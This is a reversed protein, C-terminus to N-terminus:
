APEEVESEIVSPITLDGTWEVEYGEGRLLTTIADELDAGGRRIISGMHRGEDSLCYLDLCAPSLYLCKGEPSPRWEVMWYPVFFEWPELAAQVPSLCRSLITDSCGHHRLVLGPLDYRGHADLM